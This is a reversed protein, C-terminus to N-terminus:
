HGCAGLIGGSYHLAGESLVCHVHVHKVVCEVLVLNHLCTLHESSHLFSAWLVSSTKTPSNGVLSTNFVALHIAIAGFVFFAWVTRQNKAESPVEM